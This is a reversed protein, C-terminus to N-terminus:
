RMASSNATASKLVLASLSKRRARSEQNTHSEFSRLHASCRRIDDKNMSQLAIKKATRLKKFQAKSRKEHINNSSGITIDMLSKRRAISIALDPALQRDKDVERMLTDLVKISKLIQKGCGELMENEFLQVFEKFDIEGDQSKDVMRILRQVELENKAAGTSLLADMMESKSISGNGNTDLMKFWAEM